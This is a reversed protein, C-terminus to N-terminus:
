LTMSFNGRMESDPEYKLFYAGVGGDEVKENEPSQEAALDNKVLQVCNLWNPFTREDHDSTMDFSCMAENPAEEIQLRTQPATM